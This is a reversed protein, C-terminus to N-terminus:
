FVRCVSLSFVNVHANATTNDLSPTCRWHIDNVVIAFFHSSRRASLLQTRWRLWHGHRHSHTESSGRWECYKATHKEREGTASSVLLVHCLCDNGRTSKAVVFTEVC